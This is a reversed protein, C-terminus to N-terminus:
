VAAPAEGTSVSPASGGGAGGNVSAASSSTWDKPPRPPKGNMIDDIQDSDITEWELLAKAMAHMKDHNEEILKRAISYQEDIIRRIVLDVKRMTEESMSTTKTISRGLFVEGENEAYVMPGLEDTMGYRTVMDRALQTAREFDNSAGTTMQHMFVEEAIRGGFLVSITSLMREKDLSYRDGEPLQMTVGLARGRPIVTVKHVPDTKPMLRAVLAHGSEHYATNRREEEPMIMSKREPGMMIKDKAREFDAMEVVRGSRRAAFLAAENVLNALDAGSFGPTGRALIDAKIDTGIPVKRMHVNLIQERGRVDPLTVYVQRDFRGPRLLAPDLIDPRNTAAMVIVGLNTEFGDMEVLMQNLTQEREDNGGGLGAGRHRGVADIEDIFIICPASKKAQEFMDRVRAAGVGVFMEVFDSGSIAFFPVKAEGAIAKALLTKGTGPPGVLLVGRPIRGGLKQFKQPDKLFDVLEKVEEKAEDCGAVDQFTTTNNAEDLLRAKSKGFSFAGGKGGGQMQRMFYIWVGILLLMPGWSLLISMLISPEERPKVDFKIGNNILDGVLGRDLYTATTRLTKGDTTQARIETAGNGSEQLTVSAIRKSRVEELFDSYGIQGGATATRDFQKFVTFLVLAIVMWVAVKSFWQNNV